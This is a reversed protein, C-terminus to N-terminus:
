EVYLHGPSPRVIWGGQAEEALAEAERAASEADAGLLAALALYTDASLACGLLRREVASEALILVQAWSLAGLGLDAPRTAREAREAMEELIRAAARMRAVVIEGKDRNM